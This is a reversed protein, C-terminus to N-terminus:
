RFDWEINNGSWKLEDVLSHVYLKVYFLRKNRLMRRVGLWQEVVCEWVCRVGLWQEVVCEWVCHVGLWQEVVCEWVCRVGLWQEVVCEWVCDM